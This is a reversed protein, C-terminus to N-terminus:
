LPLLENLEAQRGYESLEFTEAYVVDDARPGYRESLLSRFQKAQLRDRDMFIEELWRLRESEDSPVDNIRKQDYPLWDFFQSQHCAMLELKAQLVDDIIVGCDPRFPTPSSFHDYVNLIVPAREPAPSEPCYLPVTILYAIDQVLQASARHDPHYDVPRFCFIVDPAFARVEKLLRIRNALTAELCGDPVDWINYSSMGALQAVADAEARRCAALEDPSMSYHGANGNTMTVAAVEHGARTLKILTGGMRIEMDDPHAFLAMYKKKEVRRSEKKWHNSFIYRFKGIM